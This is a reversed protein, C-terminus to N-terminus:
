SEDEKTLNESKAVAEAARAADMYRAWVSLSLVHVQNGADNIYSETKVPYGAFRLLRAPSDGVTAHRGHAFPMPGTPNARLYELCIRPHQRAASQGWTEGATLIRALAAQWYADALRINRFGPGAVTVAALPSAGRIPLRGVLLDAVVRPSKGSGKAILLAVNTAFDGHDAQKPRAVAILTPLAGLEGVRVAATVADVLLSGVEERPHTHM